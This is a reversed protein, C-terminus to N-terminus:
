EIWDTGHAVIGWKGEKNRTIEFTVGGDQIIHIFVVCKDCSDNFVLKSIEFFSPFHYKKRLAMLSDTNKYLSDMIIVNHIDSGPPIHFAPSTNVIERLYGTDKSNFYTGMIKWFRINEGGSVKNLEEVSKIPIVIAYKTATSNFLVNKTFFILFSDIDPCSKKQSKADFSNFFCFFVLCYISIKKM